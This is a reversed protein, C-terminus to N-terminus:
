RRTIALVAWRLRSPSSAHRKRLKEQPLVDSDASTWPSTAGSKAAVPVPWNGCRFSLAQLREAVDAEGGPAGVHGRDHSTSSTDHFLEKALHNKTASLMGKEECRCEPPLLFLNSQNSQFRQGSAAGRSLLVRVPFASSAHRAGDPPGPTMLGPVTESSMKECWSM